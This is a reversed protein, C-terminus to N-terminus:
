RQGHNEGIDGNRQQPQHIGGNNAVEVARNIQAAHRNACRRGAEKHQQQEQLLVV